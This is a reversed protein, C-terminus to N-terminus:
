KDQVATSVAVVCVSEKYNNIYFKTYEVTLFKNKNKLLMSIM